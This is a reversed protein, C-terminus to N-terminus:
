RRSASKRLSRRHQHVEAHEGGHSKGWTSSFSISLTRNASYSIACAAHRSSICSTWLKRSDTKGGAYFQRHRRGSVQTNIMALKMEIARRNPTLVSRWGGCSQESSLTRLAVAAQLEHFLHFPSSRNRRKLVSNSLNVIASAPPDAIRCEMKLGQDAVSTLAEETCM